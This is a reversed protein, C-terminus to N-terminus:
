LKKSIFSKLQTLISLQKGSPKDQLEKPADPKDLIENLIFNPPGHKNSNNFHFQFIHKKGVINQIKEPFEKPHPNTLSTVLSHCDTGVIYDAKPSFCTVMITETTDTIYAKFNYRTIPHM